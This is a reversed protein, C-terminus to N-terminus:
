RMVSGTLITVNEWTAIDLITREEKIIKPKRGLLLMVHLQKLSNLDESVDICPFLYVSKSYRGVDSKM